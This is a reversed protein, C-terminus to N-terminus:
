DDWRGNLTYSSIKGPPRLQNQDSLRGALADADVPLPSAVGGAVVDGHRYDAVLDLAITIEREQALM